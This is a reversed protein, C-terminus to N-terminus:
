AARGKATYILVCTSVIRSICGHLITGNWGVAWGEDTNVMDIANLKRGDAIPSAVARWEDDEYHLIAGNVGVAWGEGDVWDIDSLSPPKASDSILKWVGNHYHLVTSDKGVAWGEEASIMDISYLHKEAPSAVKQWLGNTYHLIRGEAGVAWGEEASVMSIAELFGEGFSVEEWSGAVYHLIRSGVAWVQGDGSLAIDSLFPVEGPLSVAEWVGDQYHLLTKGGAAWGEEANVMVIASLRSNMPNEVREIKGQYYHVIGGEVGVAWVDDPEVVALDFLQVIGGPFVFPEVVGDKYHLLAGGNVGWWENASVVSIAYFPNEASVRYVQRWAPQATGPATSYHLVVGELGVAWGEDANLMSIDLLDRYCAVGGKYCVWRGEPTPTATAPLSPNATPSPTATSLVAEPVPAPSWEQRTCSTITLWLTLLAILRIKTTLLALDKRSTGCATPFSLVPLCWEGKVYKENGSRVKLHGTVV